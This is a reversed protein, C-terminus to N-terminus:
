SFSQTQHNRPSRVAISTIRPSRGDKLDYFSECSYHIVLLLRSERMAQDLTAAAQRRLTLRNQARAMAKRQRGCKRQSSLVSQLEDAWRLWNQARGDCWAQPNDGM